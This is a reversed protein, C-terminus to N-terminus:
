ILADLSIPSQIFRRLVPPDYILEDEGRTGEGTLVATEDEHLGPSQPRICPKAGTTNTVTPPRFPKRQM